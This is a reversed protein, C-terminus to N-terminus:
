ACLVCNFLKGKVWSKAMSYLVTTPLVFDGYAGYMSVVGIAPSVCKIFIIRVAANAISCQLRGYLWTLRTYAFYPRTHLESGHQYSEKM